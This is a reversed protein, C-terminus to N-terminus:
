RVLPLLSLTQDRVSTSETWCSINGFYCLTSRSSRQWGCRLSASEDDVAAEYRENTGSIGTPIRLSKKVVASYHAEVQVGAVILGCKLCIGVAPDGAQNQM